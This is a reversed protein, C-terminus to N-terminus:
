GVLLSVDAIQLFLQRLQKLLALRNNRITQDEVMVMVKDFFEDITPRLQSLSTLVNGYALAIRKNYSNLSKQINQQQEIIAKFLKKEADETLLDKNVTDTIEEQIKSLINKVRKNAAILSAADNSAKFTQIEKARIYIDFLNIPANTNETIHSAAIWADEAYTPYESGFWNQARELIFKKVDQYTAQSVQEFQSIAFQLIPALDLNIDKECIIRILGIATRRLGYPDKDGTPKQGIGFIAVLTDIKDALAVIQAITSHPLQDGAFRPLYHDRIAESVIKSEGQHLAYYSGMIGQLEPFEGVMDTALDFKALLGARKAPEIDANIKKAIEESLLAIRTAKDFLSGLKAQFTIHKLKELFYYIPHTCDTQYFFAADSLRAHMVRENGHIVQKPSKSKLNSVFIFYPLLQNKNKKSVVPFSKQHHEMASVLPEPPLQLFDKKFSAAMVVPYEVLATVENLLDEKVVANGNLKKVATEINKEILEKRKEFNAIVYAKKLQAEYQEATRLAVKGPHLFRHGYTHNTSKREFLEVNIKENGLLVVIWQVTRLFSTKSHGWRMPKPIPLQSVVQQLVEPLLQKLSKGATIKEFYLCVGKDTEKHKLKNFDVGCSRAFGLAAQTPKKDQDFAAQLSPGIRTIHQKPQETSIKKFLVAMRRPTAFVLVDNENFKFELKALAQKLNDRLALSLKELSKAPLEETGIEFLFSKEKMNM